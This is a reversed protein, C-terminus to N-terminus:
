LWTRKESLSSLWQSKEIIKKIIGSTSVYDQVIQMDNIGLIFETIIM